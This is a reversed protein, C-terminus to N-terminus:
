KNYNIIDEELLNHNIFDEIEQDTLSDIDSEYGKEVLYNSYIKHSEEKTYTKM